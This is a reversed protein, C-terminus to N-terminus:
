NISKQLYKSQSCKCNQEIDNGFLQGFECTIFFILHKSYRGQYVLNKGLKNDLHKLHPPQVIVNVQIAVTKM